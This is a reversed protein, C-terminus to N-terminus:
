FGFTRRAQDITSNQNTACYTSLSSSIQQADPLATIQGAIFSARAHGLIWDVAAATASATGLDACRLTGPDMPMVFAPQASQVANTGRPPPTCASVVVCALCVFLSRTM